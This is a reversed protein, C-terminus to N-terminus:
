AEDVTADGMSELLRRAVQQAGPIDLHSSAHSLVLLEDPLAWDWKEVQMNSTETLLEIPDIDDRYAIGSLAEELSWDPSAHVNVTLGYNGCAGAGAKRLLIMLANNVRDGAWTLLDYGGSVPLVSRTDLHLGRYWARAESLMRAAHEDLYPVDERSRLITRMEARIQDHIAPRGSDFQPPAGSKEPLVILTKSEESVSEVRWRRGAFIMCLGPFVPSEIPINGLPSGNHVIRWEDPTAFVAYFDYHGSLKEGKAGPLLHGDRSQELLEHHAMARLVDAFVAPPLNPFTGSGVLADYLPKAKIGNREVAVALIQHVLVSLHLGGVDPPECWGKLLLDITAIMQVLSERLRDSLGSDPTLRAEACYGRLTAPMGERRGSRGLRQRLSAVSGPPGIQAVCRVDGIDIGLELTNTCVASVPRNRNKLAEEAARRIEASLSGHHPFFQAPIRDKECRDRLRDAYWEVKSRSNAFILNHSNRLKTYLHDILDSLAMDSENEGIEYGRVQVQLNKGGEESRIIAASSGPRIFDAALSLDGLTASLGVRPPNVGAASGVRAMLSTLQKGRVSGIFAHLEDIVMYRLKEFLRPVTTGRRTLLAELSEPTILVIGYPHRLFRGKINAGVDGHWPIVPIELAECLLEVRSFQDNILAKLPSIYLVVGADGLVALDSVIPLFAAETKGSATSASIIVDRERQLLM